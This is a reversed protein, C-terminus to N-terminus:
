LNLNVGLEPSILISDMNKQCLMTFDHVDETFM